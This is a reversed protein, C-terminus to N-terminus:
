FTPPVFIKKPELARGEETARQLKEQQAKLDQEVRAKEAQLKGLEERAQEAHNRQEQLLALEQRLKEVQAQEEGSLRVRKEDAAKRSAATAAELRRKDSELAAKEDRLKQLEIDTDIKTSLQEELLRKQKEVQDKEARLRELESDGVKRSAMSAELRKKEAELTAKEDRLRQLEPDPQSKRSLELELLRKQKEVQDKEARLRELEADGVKRSAMSAELRTKEAELGAKEERMRRLETETDGKKGLEIELLRKQKEVQDKEARLRSLESEGISRSAMSAELRKKESELATKEDRLRQLEPDPQAKKSLELEMLRKQKEMLDKEVRLKELEADKERRLQAILDDGSEKCNVFCFEGVLSGSIWPVQAGREMRRTEERVGQTVRKFVDELKLGPTELNALLHKTFIGNGNAPGDYSMDGEATAFAIFTGFPAKVAALGGGRTEAGYGMKQPLPNNRCADLIVINFENRADQFGNMLFNLSLTEDEYDREKRVIAATPILYNVGNYQAGHGAYYFLGVGSRSDKLKDVFIDIKEKMERRTRLNDVCQVDFQLRRLAACMDRADKKPNALPEIPPEYSSNGIVLAFRNGRGDNTAQARLDQPAGLLFATAAIAFLHGV